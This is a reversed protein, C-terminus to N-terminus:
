KTPTIEQKESDDVKQEEKGVVQKALKLLVQAEEQSLSFNSNANELNNIGFKKKARAIERQKKREKKLEKQKKKELKQINKQEKKNVSNNVVKKKKGNKEQQIQEETKYLIPKAFNIYNRKWFFMMKEANLGQIPIFGVFGIPVAVLIVIWGAMNSGIKPSLLLYLPITTILVLIGFIWQRLTFNYFKEKYDKIEDHIRPEIRDM